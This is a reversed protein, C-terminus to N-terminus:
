HSRTDVEREAAKPMEPLSGRGRGGRGSSRPPLKGRNRHENDFLRKMREEATEAPAGEDKKVGSGWPSRDAKEGEDGLAKQLILQKFKPDSQFANWDEDDMDECLKEVENRVQPDSYAKNELAKLAEPDVSDGHGLDQTSIKGLAEMSFKSAEKMADLGAKVTNLADEKDALLKELDEKEKGTASEIRKKLEDNETAKAGILSDKEAIQKDQKEIVSLLELEAKEADSLDSMARLTELRAKQESTM